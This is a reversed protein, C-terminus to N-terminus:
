IAWVIWSSFSETASAGVERQATCTELPMWIVGGEPAGGDSGGTFSYMVRENGASDLTFVTGFGLGIGGASTTGYLNGGADRIVGAQPVAGDPNDTFTHLVAYNGQPDVKFVVGCGPFFGGCASLDGGVSTTGYLNGQEDRILDIQYPGAGDTRGTFTYLVTYKLGLANQGALQVPIALASFLTTAIICTLLRDKRTGAKLAITLLLSTM